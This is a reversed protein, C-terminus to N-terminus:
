KHQEFPDPLALFPGAQGFKTTTEGQGTERHKLWGRHHIPPFKCTPTETFDRKIFATV